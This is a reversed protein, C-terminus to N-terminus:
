LLRDSRINYWMMGNGSRDQRIYYSKRTITNFSRHHCIMVPTVSSVTIQSWTTWTPIVPRPGIIYWLAVQRSFLLALIFPVWAFMLMEYRVCACMKRSIKSHARNITCWSQWDLHQHWAIIGFRRSNNETTTAFQTLQYGMALGILSLVSTITNAIM